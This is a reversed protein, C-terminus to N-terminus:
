ANQRLKALAEEFASPLPADLTIEWGTIPHPFMLSFAHLFFRRYRFHRKFAQDAKRNGYLPDLLLPHGLSAFHQRIQHKRGTEICAEVYSVNNFVELVHYHTVAEVLGGHTRARLPQTITGSRKELRGAVLARYCKKWGAFKSERVRRVAEGSRAFVVIGSTTFDLRHLVRLGPYEKRLFDYLPLKGQGDERAAVVLEGSLKAVALLHDDCYLIRDPHIPMVM